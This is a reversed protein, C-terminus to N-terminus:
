SCNVKTLVNLPYTEIVGSQFALKVHTPSTLELVVGVAKAPTRACKSEWESRADTVNLRNSVGLGVLGLYLSFLVLGFFTNNSIKLVM